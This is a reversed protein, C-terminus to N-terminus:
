AGEGGDPRDHHADGGTGAEADTKRDPEPRSRVSGDVVDAAMQGVTRGQAFARTRMRDLPQDLDVGQQVMAGGVAQGVETRDAEAATM